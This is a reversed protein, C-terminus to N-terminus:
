IHWANNHPNYDSQFTSLQWDSVPKNENDLKRPIQPNIKLKSVDSLWKMSEEYDKVRIISVNNPAIIKTLEYIAIRVLHKKLNFNRPERLSLNKGIEPVDANVDIEPTFVKGEFIVYENDSLEYNNYNEAYDAIAGWNNSDFPNKNNDFNELSLLTYFEGEFFSCGM